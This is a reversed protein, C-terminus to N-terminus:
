CNGACPSHLGALVAQGLSIGGDNAPIRRPWYVTFGARTLRALLDELLYRNQFVGGGIAAREIGTLRRLKALTEEIAAAVTNHFKAAMMGTAEGRARDQLLGAWLPGFDLLWLGTGDTVKGADEADEAGQDGTGSEVSEHLEFEYRGDVGPTALAELEMAPQGDYVAEPCVGLLASVADFLRGCSSTFPANIGLEIQKLVAPLERRGKESLFPEARTVGERGLAACLHSVLMREPHRIGGEGGPLPVYAQHAVRTFAGPRGAFIEFGWIRGDRGYGTGDCVVGLVPEKVGNEALCAALHAEHHQVQVLPVRRGAAFAKAFKTARYEPHLDCAVKEPSISFYGEYRSIATQLFELSSLDKIEGIHQSLFYREGRALCFTNKQDGGVALVPRSLPLHPLIVPEPVYGRSRRYLVESGAVVATVSDDCRNFIERNHFVFLEAVPGLQEVAARNDIVLPMDSLNGSTAVLCPLDEDFLLLHLPAYPLMVGLTNMGPAVPSALPRMETCTRKELLVIPRRWSTLLEEEARCIRCYRRVVALDRCMVAFPKTERRKRWRLNRVAEDNTADCVLHFGGVGKVALIAGEKLRRRAEALVHAPPSEPGLGARPPDPYDVPSKGGSAQADGTWAGARASQIDAMWVSPGCKECANPQAHFRRDLPSDYEEQCDPCMAFAKMTTRRRDYPLDRVITFRPGCNTCNIFPYGFRRDRSNLLERQCDPCIGMDPTILVSPEEEAKSQSITFAEYGVPEALRIEAQTIRAVRPAQRPIERYFRELDEPEGEVEVVVGALSNFVKGPLGFQHALRYLFPRFGVGQVMGNVTIVARAIKGADKRVKVCGM